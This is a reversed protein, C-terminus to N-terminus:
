DTTEPLSAIESLGAMSASDIMGPYVQQGTVDIVAVGEPAALDKGVGVIKGDRILISGNEIVPGSITHITGGRLLYTPAAEPLQAPPRATPLISILSPTAKSFPLLSASTGSFLLIWRYCRVVELYM